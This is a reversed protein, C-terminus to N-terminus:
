QGQLQKLEQRAFDMAAPDQGPGIALFKEFSQIAEEKQGKLRYLVGLGYHVEPLSPKRERARILLKEAEPLNNEQLRVAGLLYLTAADEPDLRLAADLAAAAQPLQGMQYYVVGLNAQASAMSSDSALAAKFAKEADAFRNLRVYVNGLGFQARASKPDLTVADLYEQEAKALNGSDFAAQGAAIHSPADGSPRTAPGAAPKPLAPTESIVEQAPSGCALASFLVLFIACGVMWLRIRLM